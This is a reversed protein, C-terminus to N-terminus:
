GCRTTVRGRRARQRRRRDHHHRGRLDGRRAARRRARAALYFLLPLWVLAVDLAIILVVGAITVGISTRATAIVQLAALFTVGPGFVLLGVLFASRPSPTAVMRTVLGRRAPRPRAQQRRRRVLLLASVALLLLGLGLRLGYRSAHHDPRSLGTSRLVVLGVVALTTSMLVAGALFFVTTEGPRASGLYAATILLVAPSIAALLALGAAQVLMRGVSGSRPGAPRVRGPHVPGARPERASTLPLVGDRFVGDVFVRHCLVGNCLVGLRLRPSRM